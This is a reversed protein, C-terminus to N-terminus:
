QGFKDFGRKPTKETMWATKAEYTCFGPFWCYPNGGRVLYSQSVAYHPPVMVTIRYVQETLHKWLEKQIALQREAPAGTWEDLLKDVKSDSIHPINITPPSSSHYHSYIWDFATPGSGTNNLTVLADPLEAGGRRKTQWTGSELQKLDIKLGIDEWSKAILVAFDGFPFGQLEGWEVTIKFGPPIGAEALLERARKPNYQYNPGLNKYTYESRDTFGALAWPFPGYLSGDSSNIVELATDRDIAMSLAQRVRVDDFPKKKLNFWVGYGAWGFSPVRYLSTDPITKLLQNLTDIRSLRMLDVQGARYLAIQASETRTFIYRVADLYPLQNGDKDRLHYNPNRLMLAGEGPVFEKLIFPGTGIPNKQLGGPAEVAERPVIVPVTGDTHIRPFDTLPLNLRFRVAYKDLVEVSKVESAGWGPKGRLLDYSYKVDEATMERGNVPPINHFKVGQKLKFDWTSPDVMVWSEALNKRITPITQVEPFYWQAEWELLEDWVVNWESDRIRVPDTDPKISTAIHLVGGRRPPWSPIPPPSPFRADLEKIFAPAAFAYPTPTPQAVPVPPATVVAAPAKTAIPAATATPQPTSTPAPTAKAAAGCAIAFLLALLLPAFFVSKPKLFPLHAM